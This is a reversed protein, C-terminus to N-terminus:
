VNDLHFSLFVFKLWISLATDIKVTVSFLFRKVNITSLISALISAHLAVRWLQWISWVIESCQQDLVMAVRVREVFLCDTSDMWKSDNMSCDIIPYIYLSLTFHCHLFHHLLFCISWNTWVSGQCQVVWGDEYAAPPGQERLRTEHRCAPQEPLDGSEQCVLCVCVDYLLEQCVLCVCVCMLCCSRTSWVCVCMMCCSRASWVCVCVCWVVVGPLGFVCVCVCWVVVGPLGFVCVCWVVVGPLGFVCVCVDSLLEQCVLCVCVCMLCCSRASWVCVCVCMLCCSRASWVCVCVCWVVVGPLGFLLVCMLCSRASWVFVCVDSLLEQCVLCCCVCWVVGPLGFLCVCMLCCCFESVKDWGVFRYRCANQQLINCFNAVATTQKFKEVSYELSSNFSSHQQIHYLARSALLSTSSLVHHLCPWIVHM